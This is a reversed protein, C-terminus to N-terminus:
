VVYSTDYCFVGLGSTGCSEKGISSAVYSVIPLYLTSAGLFLFRTAATHRYCRGSARAAVMIAVLVANAVMLGNSRWLQATVGKVFDRVDDESCLTQNM